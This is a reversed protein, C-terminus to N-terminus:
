ILWPFIFINCICFICLSLGSQFSQTDKTQDSKACETYAFYVPESWVLYVTDMTRDSSACKPYAFYVPESWVLYVNDITQASSACKTYAIYM